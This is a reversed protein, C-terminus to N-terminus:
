MNGSSPIFDFTFFMFLGEFNKKLHGYEYGISDFRHPTVCKLGKGFGTRNSRWM